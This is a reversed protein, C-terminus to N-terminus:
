AALLESAAADLSNLAPRKDDAPVLVPKGEPKVVLDGLLSSFAKKGVLKEAETIGILKVTQYQEPRFGAAALREAVKGEDAFKRVSRGEVLKLGPYQTGAIARGTMYDTLDNAWRVIESLRPFIAALEENTLEPGRKMDGVTALAEDARARCTHRAKCFQCHEGSQFMGKGEWALSAIPKVVQEAWEVLEHAPMGWEDIHDLRPQVVVMRVRDIPGWISDYADYAALAYLMLQANNPADVRVGKGYKLDVITLRGEDLIVADSTGFGEPVWKEFSLRREVKLTGPIARVHDLYVQVFERMEIPYDGEIEHAHRGSVLAREALEHALTGEHAYSSDEDPLSANLRASPPCALWREASSASLVAHAAM